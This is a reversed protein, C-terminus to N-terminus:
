ELLMPVTADLLTRAASTKGLGRFVSKLAPELDTEAHVSLQWDVDIAVNGAEELLRRARTVKASPAADAAIKTLEDVERELMSLNVSIMQRLPVGAADVTAQVPPRRGKYLLMIAVLLVGM